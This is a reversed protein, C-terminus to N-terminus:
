KSPWGCSESPGAASSIPRGHVGLYVRSIGVLPTLTAAVAWVAVHAAWSRLRAAGLYALVGFAAAATAAHASPFAYGETAALAQTLPALVKRGPEPPRHGPGTPM